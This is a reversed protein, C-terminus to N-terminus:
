VSGADPETAQEDPSVGGAELQRRFEDREIGSFHSADADALFACAAAFNCLLYGEEGILRDPDRFREIFVVTLHPHEPAARLLAYILLPLLDDAGAQSAGAGAGDEGEPARRADDLVALLAVMTRKVRRM